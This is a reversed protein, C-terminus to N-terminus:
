AKASKMLGCPAPMAREYWFSKVADSRSSAGRVAMPTHAIAASLSASASRRADEIAM